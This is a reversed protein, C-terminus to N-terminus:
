LPDPESLTQNCNEEAVLRRAESMNITRADKATAAFFCDAKMIIVETDVVTDMPGVVKVFLSPDGSKRAIDAIRNPTLQKRSDARLISMTTAVTGTVVAASYSTGGVLHPVIAGSGFAWFIQAVWAGPLMSVGGVHEYFPHSVSSVLFNGRSSLGAVKLDDARYFRNARVVPINTSGTVGLVHKECGIPWASIRDARNGAPAIIISSVNQLLGSYTMGGCGYWNNFSGIGGKHIETVGFKSVYPGESINILEPPTYETLRLRDSYRIPRGQLCTYDDGCDKGRSFPVDSIVTALKLADDFPFELGLATTWVKRELLSSLPYRKQHAFFLRLDLPVQNLGNAPIVGFPEETGFLDVGRFSIPGALRLTINQGHNYVNLGRSYTINDPSSYPSSRFNPM